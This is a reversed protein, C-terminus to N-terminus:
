ARFDQSANPAGTIATALAREVFEHLPQSHPAGSVPCFARLTVSVRTAMARYWIGSSVRQHDATSSHQNRFRMKGQSLERQTEVAVLAKANARRRTWRAPARRPGQERPEQRLSRRCILWSAAGRHRFPLDIWRLHNPLEDDDCAIARVEVLMELAPESPVFSNLHQEIAADYCSRCTGSGILGFPALSIAAQGRLDVCEQARNTPGDHRRIDGLIMMPSVNTSTSPAQASKRQVRGDLVSIETRSRASLGKCSRVRAVLFALRLVRELVTTGKFCSAVVGDRCGQSADAADQALPAPTSSRYAWAWADPRGERWRWRCGGRPRGTGASRSLSRRAAAPKRSPLTPSALNRRSSRCPNPGSSTM